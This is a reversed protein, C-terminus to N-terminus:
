CMCYHFYFSGQSDFGFVNMPHIICYLQIVQIGCCVTKLFIYDLLEVFVIMGLHASIYCNTKRSFQLHIQKTNMSSFDINLLNKHKSNSIIGIFKELFYRLNEYIKALSNYSCMLLPFLIYCLQILRFTHLYMRSYSWFSILNSKKCPANVNNLHYFICLSLESAISKVWQM